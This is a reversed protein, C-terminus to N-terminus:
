RRHGGGPARVSDTARDCPAVMAVNSSNDVVPTSKLDASFQDTERRSRVAQFLAELQQPNNKNDRIEQLYPM